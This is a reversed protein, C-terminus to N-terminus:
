PHFGGENVLDPLLCLFSGSLIRPLLRELPEAVGYYAVGEPQWTVDVVRGDADICWAHHVWFAASSVKRAIGECYTLDPRDIVLTAANRFCAQAARRRIGKPRPAPTFYRGHEALYDYFPWVDPYVEEPSPAHIKAALDDLNIVEGVDVPEISM